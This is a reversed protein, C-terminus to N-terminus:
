YLNQECNAFLEIIEQQNELSSPQPIRSNLPLYEPNIEISFSIECVQALFLYGLFMVWPLGWNPGM